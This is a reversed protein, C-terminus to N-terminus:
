DGAGASQGPMRAFEALIAAHARIGREFCTLEFKENPSHVRDDDLGFGVLLSDFRLIRQISGVVPISGGSGILVPRRKFVQKLGRVAAELYPSETPVRIAPSCGHQEIEWRYGKPTRKKLFKVLGDYVKKPDQDPVLRCSIKATASAGIVTKAGKGTYGGHIGNVDCTPRSWMRELTSRGREGAPAKVGASALFEKENFRLGKWTTKESASLERVGAYFGPIRVRGRDDHLEGIIRCLANIPNVLTGGYMGSHLDHTPGHLTAEIYVLGRLMYTIAPTRIDWMGTDCVVCVDAALERKNARLFPELSRSGSEEEGELLITVRVPLSGHVAKWARLAEIFTMVQGKDDVAGRAVVRRGHPSRVIAPEFPPSTWQDLPDPPQVDYHGYYLIHPIRGGRSAAGRTPTPGSHHAVVMPHGKTERLTADFGIQKLEGVCWQGARRTEKDFASDTSVSPIRLLECLRDVSRPMERDISALVPALMDSM